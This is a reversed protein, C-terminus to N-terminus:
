PYRSTRPGICGGCAPSPPITDSRTGFVQVLVIRVRPISRHNSSGGTRAGRFTERRPRTLLVIASVTILVIADVVRESLATTLVFAKSLGAQRSIMLSRVVEGARAPLVNNGFYGAATAWFAVRVPVKGGASLLVRWRLARAFLALSVTGLALAVFPLRASRVITWVRLWEIGRLSYYLLIGALALTVAWYIARPRSKIPAEISDAV